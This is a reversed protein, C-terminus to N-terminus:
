VMINELVTQGDLMRVIRHSFRADHESHTVMIITTGQENLDTLLQMVENGNNSDLNGTPEDALILKPNNVLARAVAVRQQQGGSLQQPFHNRRHMIQMKDLVAEVRKKREPTKEGVYILPLEVNEFVTLEDILNFSQFVFGINRKRLQARQREKFFTVDIGNFLFQGSDADDLLGLINLLTSKGCGSPGIVAVFEGPKVEFSLKNLAVTEIEETRYIKELDTIKIMTIKKIIVV